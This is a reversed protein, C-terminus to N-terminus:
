LFLTVTFSHLINGDRDRVVDVAIGPHGGRLVVGRHAGQHDRVELTQGSPHILEGPELQQLSLNLGPDPLEAGGVPKPPILHM